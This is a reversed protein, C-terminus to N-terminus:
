VNITDNLQGFQSHRAQLVCNSGAGRWVPRAKRKLSEHLHHTCGAASRSIERISEDLVVTRTGIKKARIRGKAIETYLKSSKIGLLDCADPVPHAYPTKNM